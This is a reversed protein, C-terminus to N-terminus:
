SSLHQGGDVCIMQGTIAPTELLFRV